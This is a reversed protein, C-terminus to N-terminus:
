RRWAAPIDARNAELELAELRAQLEARKRELEERRGARLGERDELYSELETLPLRIQEFRRRWHEEGLGAVVAHNPTLTIISQAPDVEYSFHNFFAGGLLGIDMTPNVTAMLGEVRAGALVVSDIRVLPVRILGNATRVTTRPADPAIEIGLREAVATPLSVGSAGTDVLFPVDTHGNVLASVRMLSGDRQFPVRFSRPRRTARHAADASYTQFSGGPRDASADSAQDRYRAPVQQLSQAFHLRGNEDTWRYVDASAAGALVAGLILCGARWGGM